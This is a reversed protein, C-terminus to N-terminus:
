ILISNFISHHLIFQKVYSGSGVEPTTPLGLRRPVSVLGSSDRRQGTVAPSVDQNMSSAPRKRPSTRPVSSRVSSIGNLAGALLM